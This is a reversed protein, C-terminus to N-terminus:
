KTASSQFSHGGGWVWVRVGGVGMWDYHLITSVVNYCTIGGALDGHAWVGGWGVRMKEGKKQFFCLSGKFYCQGGRERKTIQERNKRRWPNREVHPVYPFGYTFQKQFPPIWVHGYTDMRLYNPNQLPAPTPYTLPPAGGGGRM